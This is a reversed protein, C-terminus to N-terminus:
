YSVNIRSIAQIESENSGYNPNLNLHKNPNNIQLIQQNNHYNPRMYTSPHGSELYKIPGMYNPALGKYSRTPNNPVYVPYLNNYMPYRTVQSPKKQKRNFGSFIM